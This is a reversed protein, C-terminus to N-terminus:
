KSQEQTLSSCTRAHTCATLCLDVFIPNVSLSFVRSIRLTESAFTEGSPSASVKGTGRVESPGTNKQEAIPVSIAYRRVPRRIQLSWCLALTSQLAQLLALENELLDLQGFPVLEHELMALACVIRASAFAYPMEPVSVYSGPGRGTDIHPVAVSLRPLVNENKGRSRDINRPLVLRERSVAVRHRRQWLQRAQLPERLQVQLPLSGRTLGSPM